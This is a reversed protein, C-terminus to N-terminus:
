GNEKWLYELAIISAILLILYFPQRLSLYRLFLYLSVGVALLIAHRRRRFFYAGIFGISVTLLLFFGTLIVPTDPSFANVYASLVIISSAGLFLFIPNRERKHREM